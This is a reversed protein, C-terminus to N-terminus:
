SESFQADLLAYVDIAFYFGLDWVDFDYREKIIKAGWETLHYEVWGEKEQRLNALQEKRVTASCKHLHDSLVKVCIDIKQSESFEM